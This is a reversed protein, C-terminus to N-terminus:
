EKRLLHRGYGILVLALLMAPSLVVLDLVLGYTQQPSASLSLNLGGAAFIFTVIALLMLCGAVVLAAGILNHRRM